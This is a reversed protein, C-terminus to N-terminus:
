DRGERGEEGGERGGGGEEKGEEKRGGKTADKLEVFAEQSQQVTSQVVPVWLLAKSVDEDSHHASFM